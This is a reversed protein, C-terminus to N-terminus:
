SFDNQWQDLLFKRDTIGSLKANVKAGLNINRKLVFTLAANKEFYRLSRGVFIWVKGRKAPSVDGDCDGDSVGGCAGCALSGDNGSIGAFISFVRRLRVSDGRGYNYSIVPAVGM